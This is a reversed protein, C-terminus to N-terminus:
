EAVQVSPPRPPILTPDATLYFESGSMSITNAIIAGTMNLTSLNMSVGGNPAYIVGTWEAGSGSLSVVPGCHNQDQGYAGSFAILGDGGGGTYYSLNKGPGANITITGTAVITLGDHRGDGNRDGNVDVNTGISVDGQVFYLGELERGNDPNWKGNQWEHQPDMVDSASFIATYLPARNASSGSPKYDAMQLSLPDTMPPSSGPPPTTPTGDKTYWTTNNGDLQGVMGSDGYVDTNGVKLDTNSWLGGTISGPHGNSNSWAVANQCVTSGGFIAPVTAPDLPPICFGVAHTTVQLPNKYVVQIFYSPKNATIDVQIYNLNGAGTGTIPPNHISVINSSGNNDFGNQSAAQLGAQVVQNSNGKTCRAYTGAMVAADTANQADRWLFYMGGGDISLGLMAILFVAVLAMLVIAQGSEGPHPHPANEKNVSIKTDMNGIETRNFENPSESQEAESPLPPSVFPGVNAM